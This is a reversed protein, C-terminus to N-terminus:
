SCASVEIKIEKLSKKEEIGGQILMEGMVRIVPPIKGCIAPIDLTSM